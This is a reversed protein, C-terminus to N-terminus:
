KSNVKSPWSCEPEKKFCAYRYGMKPNGERVNWQEVAKEGVRYATGIREGAQINGGPWSRMDRREWEKGEQKVWCTSSHRSFDCDEVKEVIPGWVIEDSYKETLRVQPTSADMFKFFLLGMAFLGLLVLVGVIGGGIWWAKKKNFKKM